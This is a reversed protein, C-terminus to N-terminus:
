TSRILKRWVQMGGIPILAPLADRIGRVERNEHSLMSIPLLAQFYAMHAGLQAVENRALESTPPNRTYSICVGLRSRKTLQIKKLYIRICTFNSVRITGLFESFSSLVELEQVDLVWEL